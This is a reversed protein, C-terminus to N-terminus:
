YALSRTPMLLVKGQGRVTYVLSDATRMASPMERVLPKLTVELAASYALMLNGHVTLEDDGGLTVIEIESAPVPSQMVVVGRGSLKPQVPGDGPVVGQVSGHVHTSIDIASDCAYFAEADLLLADDPGNIAMTVFHRDSPETWIEGEGTFRNSYTSDINTATTGRRALWGGTSANKQIDAGISGKAYQFAGPKLLAGGGTLRLCVQRYTVPVTAAHVMRLAALESSAPEGLEPGLPRCAKRAIDWVEITLGANAQEHTKHRWGPPEGSM